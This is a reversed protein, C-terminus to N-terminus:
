VSKVFVKVVNEVSVEHPELSLTFVNVVKHQESYSLCTSIWYFTKLAQYMNQHIRFDDIFLLMSLSCVSKQTFNTSLSEQGFYTVKLEGCIPHTQQLSCIIRWDLNVVCWIYFHDDSYVIENDNNDDYERDLFIDLHNLIQRSSLEISLNKILFLENEEHDSLENLIYYSHSNNTIVQVTVLVRELVTAMQRYDQEIFIVCGKTFHQTEKFQILNESILLNHNQTYVNDESSTWISFEWAKSHWLETPDDCYETMGFHMKCTLKAASLIQQVLDFSDYWYQWFIRTISTRAKDKDETPLSSQKDILVSLSKWMLWLMSLHRHVQCKLTDLKMFLSVEDDASSQLWEWIECLHVYDARSEDSKEFWLKLALHISLLSDQSLETKLVEFFSIESVISNVGSETLGNNLDLIYNNFLAAHDNLSVNEDDAKSSTLWIDVYKLYCCVIDYLDKVDINNSKTSEDIVTNSDDLTHDSRNFHSKIDDASNDIDSVESWERNVLIEEDDAWNLWNLRDVNRPAM